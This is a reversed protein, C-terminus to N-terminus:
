PDQESRVAEASKGAAWLPLHEEADRRRMRTAFMSRLLSWNRPVLVLAAVHVILFVLIFITAGDHLFTMADRLWAALAYVYHLAKVVGTVLVIGVLLAWGPYSLM